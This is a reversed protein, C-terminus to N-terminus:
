KTLSTETIQHLCTMRNMNQSHLMNDTEETIIHDKCVSYYSFTPLWTHSQVIVHDLLDYDIKEAKM